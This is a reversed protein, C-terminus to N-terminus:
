KIIIKKVEKTLETNIVILYVGSKLKDINSIYTDFGMSRYYKIKFSLKGSMDYGIVELEKVPKKFYIRFNGGISPNPYITTQSFIVTSFLLMILATLNKM